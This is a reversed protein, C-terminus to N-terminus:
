TKERVSGERRKKQMERRGTREQADQRKGNGVSGQPGPVCDDAVETHKELCHRELEGPQSGEHQVRTVKKSARVM